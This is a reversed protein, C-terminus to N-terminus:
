QLLEALEDPTRNPIVFMLASGLTPGYEKALQKEEDTFPTHVFTNLRETRKQINEISVNPFLKTIGIGMVPYQKRLTDYDNWTWTSQQM